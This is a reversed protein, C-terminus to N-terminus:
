TQGLNIVVHTPALLERLSPIILRALPADQNLVIEVVQRCSDLCLFGSVHFVDRVMRWIGYQRLPTPGQAPPQARPTSQPSRPRTLWAQAWVVVNHALSGLLMVMQQAEFRKKNRKTLGMGRKDGKFSTEIGGGRQDYLAVLAVLVAYKESAAQPSSGALQLIQQDSLSCILVSIGWQGNPKRCRVAVRLVPRVFATPAETIWGIQREPLRPDSVWEQVSKALLRAQQASCAKGLIHYGQEVLWNLNPVSGGGADVRVLCRQRQAPTLHLTAQAAQMLEQLTVNLQQNGAFLRDVVVEQYRTALVRGLQRGRRNRQSGAFYGKTAFAAKKGCPWGSLDVDLVQWDARSDHRYGRSHQRYIEDLAQERQKVNESTCADLTQQVLSQEACASRGFAAQLARDSRLRSNIEV